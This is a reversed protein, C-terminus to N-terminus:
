YTLIQLIDVETAAQPLTNLIKNKGTTTTHETTGNPMQMTNSPKEFMPTLHCMNQKM